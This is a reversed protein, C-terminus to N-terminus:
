FGSANPAWAGSYNFYFWWGCNTTSPAAGPTRLDRGDPGKCHSRSNCGNATGRDPLLDQGVNVTITGIPSAIGFTINDAAAQSLFGQMQGSVITTAPDGQWTGAIRTDELPMVIAAGDFELLITFTTSASVFCPAHVVNPFNNVGNPWPHPGIHAPDYTLCQGSTQSTYTTVVQNAASPDPVCTTPDDVNCLGEDVRLEGGALHGQSLPDFTLMFSLDIYGDDNGDETILTHLAPNLGPLTIAGAVGCNQTRDFDTIDRCLTCGLIGGVSKSVIIHPDVLVMTDIRFTRPDVAPPPATCVGDQCTGISCPTGDTLNPHSCGTSPACLNATCENDDDCVVDTFVCGSSPDCSNTTCANGDGCNVPTHACGSSPNCSDETCPDGDDCDVATQQCGALPDCTNITCANSDNCAAHNPAYVCTGDPCSPIACAAGHTCDGANTCDTVTQCQGSICQGDGGDCPTSDAANVESCGTTVSCAFSTCENGTDGCRSADATYQCAFGVCNAEACISGETCDEPVTCATAGDPSADAAADEWSADEGADDVPPVHADPGADSFHGADAEPPSDAKSGCGAAIAASGCIIMLSVWRLVRLRHM